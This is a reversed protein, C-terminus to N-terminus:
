APVLGRETANRSRRYPTSPTSARGHTSGGQDRDEREGQEGGSWIPGVTHIVFRAELRGAEENDISAVIEDIKAKNRETANVFLQNSLTDPVVTM